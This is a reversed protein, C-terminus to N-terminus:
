VAAGTNAAHLSVDWIGDGWYDIVVQHTGLGATEAVEHVGDNGSDTGTLACAKSETMWFGDILQHEVGHNSHKGADTEDETPTYGACLETCENWVTCANGSCHDVTLEVDDSHEDPVKTVTITHLGRLELSETSM